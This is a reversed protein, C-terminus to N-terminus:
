VDWTLPPSPPSFLMRVAMPQVALCVIIRLSGGVWVLLVMVVIMVVLQLVAGIILLLLDRFQALWIWSSCPWSTMVVSSAIGRLLMVTMSVRVGRTCNGLYLYSSSVAVSGM